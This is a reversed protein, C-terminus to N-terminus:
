RLYYGIIIIIIIIIITVIIIGWAGGQDQGDKVGALQPHGIDAVGPGHTAALGPDGEGQGVVVLGALELLLLPDLLRAAEHGHVPDPSNLYSVM